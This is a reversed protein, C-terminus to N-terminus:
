SIWEQRRKFFTHRTKSKRNYKLYARGRHYYAKAFDPKMEIARTFDEVAGYYDKNDVKEKGSQFWVSANKKTQSLAVSNLCTIALFVSIMIKIMSIKGM